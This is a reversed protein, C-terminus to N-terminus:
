CRDAHNARSAIRRRNGAYKTYALTEVDARQAFPAVAQLASNAAVASYGASVMAAVFGRRSLKSEILDVVLGRM